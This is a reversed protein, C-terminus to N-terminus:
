LSIEVLNTELNFGIKKYNFCIMKGLKLINIKESLIIEKLIDTENNTLSITSIINSNIASNIAKQHKPERPPPVFFANKWLTNYDKSSYFINKIDVWITVPCNAFDIEFCNLESNFYKNKLYFEKVLEIEEKLSINSIHIKKNGIIAELFNKEFIEFEIKPSYVENWLKYKNWVELETNKFKELEIKLDIENEFSRLIPIEFLFKNDFNSDINIIKNEFIQKM